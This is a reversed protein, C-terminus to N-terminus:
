SDGRVNAFLSGTAGQLKGYFKYLEAKKFETCNYFNLIQIIEAVIGTM